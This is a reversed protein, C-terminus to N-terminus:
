KKVIKRLLYTLEKPEFLKWGFGGYGELFNYLDEFTKVDSGLLEVVVEDVSITRPIKIIYGRQSQKKLLDVVVQKNVPQKSYLDLLAYQFSKHTIVEIQYSTFVKCDKTNFYNINQNINYLVRKLENFSLSNGFLVWKVKEIQEKSCKLSNLVKLVQGFTITIDMVDNENLFDEFKLM